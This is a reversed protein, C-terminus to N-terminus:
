REPFANNINNYISDDTIFNVTWEDRLTWKNGKGIINIIPVFVMKYVIKEETKPIILEQLSNLHIVNWNDWVLLCLVWKPLVVKVNHKWQRSFQLNNIDYIIRQSVVYVYWYYNIDRITKVIM